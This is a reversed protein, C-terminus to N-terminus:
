VRRLCSPFGGSGACVRLLNSWETGLCCCLVSPAGVGLLLCPASVLGSAVIYERVAVILVSGDETPSCTYPTQRVLRWRNAQLAWGVSKVRPDIASVPPISKHM